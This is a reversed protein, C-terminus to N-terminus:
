WYGEGWLGGLVGWFWYDWEFWLYEYCKCVFGGGGVVKDGWDLIWSRFSCVECSIRGYWYRVKWMGRGVDVCLFVYLM